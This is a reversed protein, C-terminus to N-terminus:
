AKATQLKFSPNKLLHNLLRVLKRMVATLAVLPKKGAARLRTYFAKFISDYRVATLSAMYLANRVQKRGGLIRRLGQRQGSDDDYPAVGALAAATEPRLTGLEPLHAQLIAAITPGVGVVEQLRQTRAHWQPDAALLKAIEKECAAIQATFTKLLAAHQKQIFADTYHEGHNQEATRLEVLQARRGVLAELREQQASPALTPAPHVAEAFSRIVKADIPDNKARLGQARAHGRVRGPEVISLRYSAAYLARAIPREYGGSAELVVQCCAPDGLLRLLRAHGKADNPLNHSAGQWALQFSAKAVDIGAYLIPYNNLSM